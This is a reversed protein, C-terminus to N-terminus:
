KVETVLRVSAGHAYTASTVQISTPLFSVEGASQMAADWEAIQKDRLEEKTNVVEEKEIKDKFTVKTGDFKSDAAWYAGMSMMDATAPATAFNLGLRDGAAPLFVVGEKEMLRFEDISLNNVYAFRHPGNQNDFGLKINAAPAAGDPFLLIGNVGGVRAVAVLNKANARKTLLYSWEDATLARWADAMAGGNSIVEKGWAAPAVTVTGKIAYEYETVSLTDYRVIIKTTDIVDVSYTTDKLVVVDQHHTTEYTIITDLEWASAVSDLEEAYNYSIFDKADTAITYPKFAVNDAAWAFLDVWGDYTAAMLANNGDAIGYNAGGVIDYQNEAFRWTTASAKFQLNGQSFQVKKGAKSVTFQGPLIGDAFTNKAVSGDSAKIPINYDHEEATKDKCGVLTLGAVLVPLVLKFYSKMSNM